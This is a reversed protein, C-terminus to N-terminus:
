ERNRGSVGLLGDSEEGGEFVWCNMVRKEVRLCGVTAVWDVCLEGKRGIM